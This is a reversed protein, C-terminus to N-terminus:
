ISLHVKSCIMCFLVVCVCLLSKTTEITFWNNTQPPGFTADRYLLPSKTHWCATDACLSVFNRNNPQPKNKTHKQTIPQKNSSHTTHISHIQNGTTRGYLYLSDVIYTPANEPTNQSLLKNPGNLGIQIIHHPKWPQRRTTSWAVVNRFVSVWHVSSIDILHRYLSGVGVLALFPIFM